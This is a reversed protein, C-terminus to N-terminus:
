INQQICFWSCYQGFSSCNVLMEGNLISCVFVSDVSSKVILVSFTDKLFSTLILFLFHHKDWILSLFLDASDIDQLLKSCVAKEWIQRRTWRTACKFFCLIGASCWITGKVYARAECLHMQHATNSWYKCFFCRGSNIKRQEKCNCSLFRSWRLTFSARLMSSPAFVFGIKKWNNSLSWCNCLVLVLRWGTTTWQRHTVEYGGSFTVPCSWAFFVKINASCTADIREKEFTLPPTTTTSLLSGGGGEGQKARCRVHPSRTISWTGM